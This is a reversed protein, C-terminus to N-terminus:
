TTLISKSLMGVTRKILNPADEIETTQWFHPGSVAQGQCSYGNFSWQELLKESVPSLAPDDGMGLEFLMMQGQGPPPTLQAQELGQALAASLEYGAIDLAQGSALNGRMQEMLGKSAGSQMGAALKLRLFQQLASKGSFTPQWFCFNSPLQLRAAAETALLCGVRLGWLWLPLGAFRPERNQLWSCALVIDDIWGQWTADGFDGSSDGCGHLDIQLVAFGAEALAQSQLAAMRRAKNMEEAFPHVYVVCGRVANGFPAHYICFRQNASGPTIPLFLPLPLATM